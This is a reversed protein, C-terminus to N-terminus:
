KYVGTYVGKYVKVQVSICSSLIFSVDIKYSALRNLQKDVVMPKTCSGGRGFLTTFGHCCGVEPAWHPAWPLCVSGLAQLCLVWSSSSLVLWGGSLLCWCWWWRACPLWSTALVLLQLFISKKGSFFQLLCVVNATHGVNSLTGYWWVGYSPLFVRGLWCHLVSHRHLWSGSWESPSCSSWSSGWLWVPLKCIM